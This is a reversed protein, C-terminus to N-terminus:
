TIRLVKLARRALLLFGGQLISLPEIPIFPAHVHFYLRSDVGEGAAGGQGAYWNRLVYM